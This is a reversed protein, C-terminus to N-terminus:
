SPDELEKCDRCLGAWPVADLRARPIPQECAECIGFRGEQIRLLAQQIATLVQGHNERLQAQIEADITAAAIDSSDGVGANAAPVLSGEEGQVALWQYREALLVKKYRQLDEVSASPRTQHTKEKAPDKRLGPTAHMRENKTRMSQVARKQQRVASIM